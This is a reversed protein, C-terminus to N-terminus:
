VSLRPQRGNVVSHTGRKRETPTALSSISHVFREREEANAWNVLEAGQHAAAELSPRAVQELAISANYVLRAKTDSGFKMRAQELVLAAIGIEGVTKRLSDEDGSADVTEIVHMAGNQLVLDAILGRELQYNTVIRHSSIDEDKRALVRDQKFQQKVQTLLNSRKERIKSPAIEPEILARMLSEIRAEYADASDAVFTGLQSLGLPGIRSILEARKAVAPIENLVLHKDMERINDLLERLSQSDLAASIARVKDLRKAVRLDLGTDAFVVIGINIREDRVDDPALRVIAYNYFNAM